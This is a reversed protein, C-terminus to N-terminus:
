QLVVDMGDSNSTYLLNGSSGFIAVRISKGPWAGTLITQLKDVVQERANSSGSTPLLRDYLSQMDERLKDEEESNLTSQPPPDIKSLRDIGNDTYEIRRRSVQTNQYRCNSTSTRVSPVVRNIESATSRPSDTADQGAESQTRVDFAFDQPHQRPTSPVSSSQQQVFRPRSINHLHPPEMGGSSSM